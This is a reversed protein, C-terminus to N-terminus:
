VKDGKIQISIEVDDNMVGEFSIGTVECDKYKAEAHSIPPLKLHAFERYDSLWFSHYVYDDESEVDIELEIRAEEDTIFGLFESLKMNNKEKRLKMSPCEM